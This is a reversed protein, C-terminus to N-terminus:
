CDVGVKGVFKTAKCNTNSVTGEEFISRKGLGGCFMTDGRCDVFSGGQKSAKDDEIYLDAAPGGENRIFDIDTMNVKSFRVFLAGNAKYNEFFEGETLTVNSKVVAMAGGDTSNNRRFSFMKMSVSSETIQLASSWTFATNVTFDMKEMTVTSKEINMAGNSGSIAHNEDFYVDNFTASTNYLEIAGSHSASNWAFMVGNKVVLKSNYLAMAGGKKTAKNGSFFVEHAFTFDDKASGNLTLVSDKMYIAGGNLPSKNNYLSCPADLLVVSQNWFSLAGGNLTDKNPPKASVFDVSKVILNVNSGYFFRTKSQGDLICTYPYFQTPAKCRLDIRRNSLDIGTAGTVTDTTNNAILIRTKCLNIITRPKTPDTQACKIAHRLQADNKVCHTANTTGETFTTM